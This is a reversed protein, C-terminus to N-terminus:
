SIQQELIERVLAAVPIGRRKAAKRLRERFAWSIPLNLQVKADEPRTITTNPMLM